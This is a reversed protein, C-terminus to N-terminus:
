ALRRSYDKVKKCIYEKNIDKGEALNMDLLLESLLYIKGWITSHHHYLENM